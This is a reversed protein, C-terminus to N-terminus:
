RRAQNVFASNYCRQFMEPVDRTQLFNIDAINDEVKNETVKLM